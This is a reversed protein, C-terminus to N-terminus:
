GGSAIVSCPLEEDLEIKRQNWMALWDEELHENYAAM